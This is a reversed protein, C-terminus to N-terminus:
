RYIAEGSIADYGRFRGAPAPAKKPAKAPKIVKAEEALLQRTAAPSIAAPTSKSCRAVVFANLTMGARDAEAQITAWAEPTARVTKTITSRAM